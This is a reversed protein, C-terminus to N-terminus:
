YEPKWAVSRVFEGIDEPKPVTALGAEYFYEVISTAVLLSSERIRDLPPYILGRSFQEPTVLAALARAARSFAKDPLHTPCAAFVALGMAPFIYVNNGQSPTITVGDYEVDPFPSGSAFIAKGKSWHIAEEASCESKSTPNSFPFIIPRETNESM